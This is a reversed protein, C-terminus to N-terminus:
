RHEKGSISSVILKLVVMRDMMGKNFKYEKIGSYHEILIDLGYIREAESEVIEITGSGIV